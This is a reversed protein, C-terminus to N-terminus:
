KHYGFFFPRYARRVWFPKYPHGFSRYFTLFQGPRHHLPHPRGHYAWPSAAAPAGLAALLLLVTLTRKM